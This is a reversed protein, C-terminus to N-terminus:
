DLVKTINRQLVSKTLSSDAKEISGGEATYNSEM